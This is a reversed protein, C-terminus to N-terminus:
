RLSRHRLGVCSAIAEFDADKHLLEVGSRITIAAILCDNLKRVTHGRQRVLRHIRAATSFDVAPDVGIQVLGRILAEVLAVEQESRAGALIEMQIPETTAMPSGSSVLKRMEDRAATAAGRFYDIWISSDILSPEPSSGTM